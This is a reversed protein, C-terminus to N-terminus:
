NVSCTFRQVFAGELCSFQAKDKLRTYFVWGDKVETVLFEGMSSSVWISNSKVMQQKRM